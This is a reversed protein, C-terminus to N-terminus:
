KGNIFVEKKIDNIKDRLIAAEEYNESEVAKSLQLHLENLRRKTRIEHVADVNFSQSGRKRDASGSQFGLPWSPAGQNSQPMGVQQGHPLGAYQKFNKLCEDCIFVESGHGMFNVHFKNTAEHKGCFQCLM